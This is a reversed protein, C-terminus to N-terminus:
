RTRRRRSPPTLPPADPLEIPPERGAIREIALRDWAAHIQLVERWQDREYEWMDQDNELAVIRSRLDVNEERLRANDERVDRVTGAAADSIVKTAEAGLKRRNVVANIVAVLVAALGASGLLQLLAETSM